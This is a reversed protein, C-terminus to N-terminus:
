ELYSRRLLQGNYDVYEWTEPKLYYSHSSLIRFIHAGFSLLPDARWDDLYSRKERTDLEVFRKWTLDGRKFNVFFVITRSDFIVSFLRIAARTSDPMSQLLKQATVVSSIKVAGPLDDQNDPFITDLVAVIIRQYEPTGFRRQALWAGLGFVGLFVLSSAARLFLGLDPYQLTAIVFVALSALLGTALYRWWETGSSFLRGLLVILIYNVKVTLFGAIFGIVLVAGSFLALGLVEVM